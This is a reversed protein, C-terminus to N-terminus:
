GARERLSPGAARRDPGPLDAGTRRRASLDWPTGRGGRGQHPAPPAPQRASELRALCVLLVFGAVMLSHETEHGWSTFGRVIDDGATLLLLGVVVGFVPLLGAARSPRIAAVGFAGALALNLAGLEHAVHTSAEAHGLILAPLAPLGAGVAVLGLAVQLVLEGPRRRGALRRSVSLGLDAPPAPFAVRLGRTAARARDQWRRCDPCGRLHTLVEERPLTPWEQDMLASLSERVTACSVAGTMALYDSRNV